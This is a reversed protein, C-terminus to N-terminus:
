RIVFLSHITLDHPHYRPRQTKVEMRLKRGCFPLLPSSVVNIRAKAAAGIAAANRVPPKLKNEIFRYLDLKSMQPCSTRTLPQLINYIATQDYDAETQARLLSMTSPYVSIDTVKNEDSLHLFLTQREQLYSIQPAQAQGPVGARFALIEVLKPTLPKGNVDLQVPDLFSPRTYNDALALAQALTVVCDEVSRGICGPLEASAKAAKLRDWLAHIAVTRAHAWQWWKDHEYAPVGNAIGPYYGAPQGGPSAMEQGRAGAAGALLSMAMLMARTWTLM